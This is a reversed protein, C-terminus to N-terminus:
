HYSLLSQIQKSQNSDLGPLGSLHRPYLSPDIKTIRGKRSDLRKSVLRVGVPLCQDCGTSLRQDLRAATARLMAASTHSYVDLTVASQSHGLLDQVLKTHENEGLLM